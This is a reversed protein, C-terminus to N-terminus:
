KATATAKDADEMAKLILAGRSDGPMAAMADTVNLNKERQLENVRSNFALTRRAPTSLDDTSREVRVEQHPLTPRKAALAAAATDFNTAFQREFDPREAATLRGANIAGDLLANMATRRFGDRETTLATARGEADTRATEATTRATEANTATTRLGGLTFNADDPVATNCATAVQDDTSDEPLGFLKILKKKLIPDMPDHTNNTPTTDSNTWADVDAIRPSNTMGISRLEDPEIRGTRKAARLNYDWAPSPYVLFGESRNKEGLENWAARVYLGDDRADMEMVGGLRREDPWRQPDCDPHGSYIPLGRFRKGKKATLTNFATVMRQAQDRQFVQEYQKWDGPKEEHWYATRGYPALLLWGDGAEPSIAPVDANLATGITLRAADANVAVAMFRAKCLRRLPKCLGESRNEATGSRNATELTRHRSRCFPLIKLLSLKM